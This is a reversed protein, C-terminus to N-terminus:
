LSTKLFKHFFKGLMKQYTEYHELHACAHPAPPTMWFRVKAPADHSRAYIRMAQQPQIFTDSCSHILMVPVQVRAIYEEPCVDFSSQSLYFGIRKAIHFFPFTPIPSQMGYAHEIQEQLNAYPSDLVAVDCLHPESDIAKMCASAGMSVGLLVLPLQKQAFRNKLFHVAAAVDRAEHDGITIYADDSEGHGRFDFLLMNHSPFLDVFKAVTEKSGRYGHCVVINGQPKAREILLGHLMVGDTSQFTVPAAGHGTKLCKQIYVVKNHDLFYFRHPFMFKAIIFRTVLGFFVLTLSGGLLWLWLGRRM